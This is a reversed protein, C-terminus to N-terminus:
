LGLFRFLGGPAPPVYVGLWRTFAFGVGFSGCLAVGLATPVLRCGRMLLLALLMGFMTIAFGLREVLLAFAAIALFTSIVELRARGRPLFRRALAEPLSRFSGALIVASFVALILGLWFPFFGPGPGIRTYFTLDLATWSVWAGLLLGALATLRFLVVGTRDPKGDARDAAEQM